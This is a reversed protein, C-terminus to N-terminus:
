LSDRLEICVANQEKFFTKLHYIILSLTLQEYWKNSSLDPM